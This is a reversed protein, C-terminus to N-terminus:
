DFLPFIRFPVFTPIPSFKFDNRSFIGGSVLLSPLVLFPSLVLSQSKCMLSFALSLGLQFSLCSRRISISMRPLAHLELDRVPELAPPFLVPRFPLCFEFFPSGAFSDSHLFPSRHSPPPAIVDVVLHHPPYRVILALFAVSSPIYQLNPSVPFVVILILFNGGRSISAFFVWALYSSGPSSVPQAKHCLLVISRRAL